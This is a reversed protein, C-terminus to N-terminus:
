GHSLQSGWRFVYCYAEFIDGGFNRMRLLSRLVLMSPMDSSICRIQSILKM